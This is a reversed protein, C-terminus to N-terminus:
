VAAANQNITNIIQFIHDAHTQTFLGDIGRPHYDKFPQAYLQDPKMVGNKTLYNIVENIFHIQKSNFTSENLYESFAQKAAERDLGVLSRIFASLNEQKGYVKEFQERSGVGGAEFLLADLAKLDSPSMPENNRLKKVASNEAHETLFQMMRARYSMLDIASGFGALEIEEADGMEDAFNSYITKRRRREIFQVLDRLKKRANDLMPLTVDQWWEMTQIDLILVMQANVMPISAQEELLGAIERVQDRLRKFIPESNLISLQVRLMLLDFQKALEEESPLENPLDSLHTAIEAVDEYTLADWEEREGYREVLERHPRVIFNDLNMAAVESHLTDAIEDELKEIETEEEPYKQLEKLLELRHLFLKKDLSDPMGPEPGSMDAKFFELNECYDFIFFFQKDRDPGFLNPSLRTGRGVMQYFKTKSRIMKFFVLNVVEPVDIGTDLMDVSIAIHPQKDPISFDDLLNQAYPEYHDIVRAFRGLLHPYHKDFREKIFQAHKHNKAFIITKGLRTGGAVKQGHIMLHKLVQDVTDANFLWRNLAASEIRDPKECEEDDWEIQDWAEKEEEPLDDYTIGERQFKLPVSVAVPPVLWRDRIAESLEYAFTPQGSPLDFLTYTNKDVESKPTATLGILCSDFYEFIAKYKQYVSRHAEDIVVLDFHGVGFHRPGDKLDDILGIMTQYTSLLVRSTASERDRETVLNVPSCDPLFANFANKAQKVLATRDALFLVRKIWNCRMLLDTLAVVTRTKGAGTAMVILGKRYHKDELDECFNRISLIQYSREVIAGDIKAQKLTQRSARRAILLRVEDKKYFGQVPRPPYYHDDWIWTEYGNTYFIIPRRGFQTELCDAYLRAQEQGIRPDKKTRKAEVVALPLGDDDWLVYDVYGVGKANPMGQVPYERDEKNGLPWGAERLMLDIFRDRTEAESYDHDDPVNANRKKAEAVEAKLAAIREDLTQKEKVEAATVAEGEARRRREEALERDRAELEEQLKQLQKATREKAEAQRRQEELLIQPNWEIGDLAKVDGRTYTRALWYLIHFLEKVAQVSETREIVRGTHVAENGVQKIYRAKVFVASPVNNRFSPEYMMDSLSDGYPWLFAADHEYLWQVVLELTRRAYFCASRPDPLAHGEAAKASDHLTPWEPKLFTFNSM